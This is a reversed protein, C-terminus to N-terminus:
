VEAASDESSFPLFVLFFPRLRRVLPSPFFSDSSSHKRQPSPPCSTSHSRLDQM